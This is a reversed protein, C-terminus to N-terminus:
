AEDRLRELKWGRQVCTEMVRVLPWGVMYKIIPAARIVTDSVPALEFGATFSPAKIQWAERQM